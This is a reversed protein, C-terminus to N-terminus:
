ARKQTDQMTLHRELEHLEHLIAETDRFTLDARKDSARAQVNQGVIIIPLLVLQLFTQALWGIIILPEGSGFAAPASILALLTFLAACAMTGVAATIVLGLRDGRGTAGDRHRAPRRTAVHPHERHEFM